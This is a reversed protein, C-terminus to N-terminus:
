RILQDSKRSRKKFSLLYSNEFRNYKDILWSDVTELDSLSLEDVSCTLDVINRTETLRYDQFIFQIVSSSDSDNSDDSLTSDCDLTSNYKM